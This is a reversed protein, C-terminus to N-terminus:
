KKLKNESIWEASKEAIALITLQPNVGLSTPTVSGDIVFLGEVDHTECNSNVVSRLPHDAMRCTGLPHASYLSLDNKGWRANALQEDITRPSTFETKQAHLTMVRRAGAAFHIEAAVKIGQKMYELDKPGIDYSIAPRGYENLDVRGESDIEKVLVISAGLHTYQRMLEKHDKGFGPLALSALTPYVPVAEIWFGGGDSNRNLFEDCMASQPIGGAPYIVDDYIGLVASTIHLTLHNGVENSSNALESRLLLMPSYIASAAVIIVPAEVVFDTKPKNTLRDIVSGFVQRLPGSV